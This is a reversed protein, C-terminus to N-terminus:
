NNFFGCDSMSIFDDDAVIIHDILLTDVADLAAKIRRTTVEDEKSPLAIGSTHNHALIVGSANAALAIEVIKRASVSASNVNGRAVLRCSLVKCKADMCLLFVVEENYGYFQPLLFEGAKETTDLIRDISTRSMMYRRGASPILKILVATNEGIGEVSCLEKIPADFVAALSGFRSILAHAIPNTDRRPIAYFLLLELLQHDDFPEIGHETFRRKVRSRHDDHVGM